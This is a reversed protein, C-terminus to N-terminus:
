HTIWCITERSIETQIDTNKGKLKMDLVQIMGDTVHVFVLHVLLYCGRGPHSHPIATPRAAHPLLARPEM